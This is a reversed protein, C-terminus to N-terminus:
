TFKSCRTIVLFINLNIIRAFIRGLQTSLGVTYSVARNTACAIELEAHDMTSRM